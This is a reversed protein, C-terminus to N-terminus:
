PQQVFLFLGIAVASILLLVTILELIIGRGEFHRHSSSSLSHTMYFSTAKETGLFFTIENAKAAILAVLRALEGLTTQSRQIPRPSEESM